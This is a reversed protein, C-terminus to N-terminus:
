EARVGGGNSVPLLGREGERYGEADDTWRAVRGVFGNVADEVRGLSLDVWSGKEKDEKRAATRPTLPATGAELAEIDATNM